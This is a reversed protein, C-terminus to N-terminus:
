CNLNITYRFKVRKNKPLKIGPFQLDILKNKLVIQDNVEGNGSLMFVTVVKGKGQITIDVVFEGKIGQKSCLKWLDGDIACLGALQNSAEEIASKSEPDESGGTVVPEDTVSSKENMVKEGQKVVASTESGSTSQCLSQAHNLIIMLISLILGPVGLPKM